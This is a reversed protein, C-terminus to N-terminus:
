SRTTVQVEATFASRPDYRDKLVREITAKSRPARGKFLEEGGQTVRVDQDLDLMSDDLLVRLAIGKPAELIRIEQGEREAVIRQGQKPDPNELWYLRPHVVDDQLWVVKSPRPDRTFAAMWPVAKADQRDMWHGKGKHIDTVHVYAGPDSASLADLATGWQAAIKNRDYAGDLEGMHIAFPLNRLGDPKAENPHGAMMSAAAFRDAMRPALQYVGDGGASYGMLYVRDPDGQECIVLNEILRDFLRDVPAQHWLNWENSPARPAVYIGEPPQYLRKQNEWQQDNVPAPAGGGGHMSIWIPRLASPKRASKADAAGKGEAAGKREASGKADGFSAAWIPMRAGDTELVGSKLEKARMARSKDAISRLAAKVAADAEARTLPKAPADAAAAALVLPLSLFLCNRALM